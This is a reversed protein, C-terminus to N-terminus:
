CPRFASTVVFTREVAIEQTRPLQKSEQISAQRRLQDFPWLLFHLKYFFFLFFSICM